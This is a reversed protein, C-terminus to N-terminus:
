VGAIRWRQEQQMKGKDQRREDLIVQSETVRNEGAKTIIAWRLCM